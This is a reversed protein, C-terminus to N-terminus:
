PPSPRQICTRGGRWNGAEPIFCLKTGVLKAERPNAKSRRAAPGCKPSCTPRTKQEQYNGGCDKQLFSLLPRRDSSTHPALLLFSLLPKQCVSCGPFRPHTSERTVSLQSTLSRAPVPLASPGAQPGHGQVRGRHDKGGLGGFGGGADPTSFGKRTCGGSTARRGCCRGGPALGPAGLEVCEMQPEVALTGQEASLLRVGGM